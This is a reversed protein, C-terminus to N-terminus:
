VCLWLHRNGFGNAMEVDNLLKSLEVATIHGMLSVHPDTARAPSNKTPNQLDDGDWADRLIASTTNGARAMVKLLTSTEPLRILVRKDEIGHATGVDEYGGVRGKERVPQKCVVPDRIAHVIGEGSSIGHQVCERSWGEVAQRMLSLVRGESTGKRAAATE